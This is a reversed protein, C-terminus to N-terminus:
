GFNQFRRKFSICVGLRQLALQEARSLSESRACWTGRVELPGRSRSGNRDTETQKQTSDLLKVKVLAELSSPPLSLLSGAKLEVFGISQHWLAHDARHVEM